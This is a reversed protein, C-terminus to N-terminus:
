DTEGRNDIADEIRKSEYNTAYTLFEDKIIEPANQELSISQHNIIFKDDPNLDDYASECCREITDEVMMYYDMSGEQMMVCIEEFSNLNSDDGFQRAARPFRRLQKEVDNVARKIIPIALKDFFELMLQNEDRLLDLESKLESKNEDFLSRMM